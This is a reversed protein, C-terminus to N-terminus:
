VNLPIESRYRSRQALPRSRPPRQSSQRHDQAACRARIAEIFARMQSSAKRAVFLEAVWALPAHVHITAEAAIHGDRVTWASDIDLIGTGALCMRNAVGTPRWTQRVKTWLRSGLPIPSGTTDVRFCLARAGDAWPGVQTDPGHFERLLDESLLAAHLAGATANPIDASCEVKRM